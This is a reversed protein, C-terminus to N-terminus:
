GKPAKKEALYRCAQEQLERTKPNGPSMGKGDLSAYWALAQDSLESLRKGNHKTGVDIVYDGPSEVAAFLPVDESRILDNKIEPNVAPAPPNAVAKVPPPMTRGSPVPQTFDLEGKYVALQFCLGKLASGLATTRAGEEAFRLENTCAGSTPIQVPVDEGQEGILHIVLEAYKLWATVWPDDEKRLIELNEPAFLFNWGVGKLGFVQTIRELMFGTNIEHLHAAGPMPKYAKPDEFPKALITPVDEIKIGAFTKLNKSM